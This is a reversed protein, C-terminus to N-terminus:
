IMREWRGKYEEKDGRRQGLGRELGRCKKGEGEEEERRTRDIKRSLDRELLSIGIQTENIPLKM